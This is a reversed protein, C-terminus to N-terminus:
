RSRKWTLEETLLGYHIVDQRGDLARRAVGEVKFGLRELFSRACRNKRGTKASIRKCGLQNLPYDFLLKVTQPLCWSPTMFSASIEIDNAASHYDHFVVGGILKAGRVVGLAKFKEWGADFRHPFQSRVFDAVKEDDNYLVSGILYPGDM